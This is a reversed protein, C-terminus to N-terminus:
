RRTPTGEWISYDPMEGSFRDYFDEWSTINMRSCEGCGAVEWFAEYFEDEWNQFIDAYVDAMDNLLDILGNDMDNVGLCDCIKDCAQYAETVIRVHRLFNTKTMVVIVGKKIM